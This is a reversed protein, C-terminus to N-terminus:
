VESEQFCRILVSFLKAQKGNKMIVRDGKVLINHNKNFEDLTYRDIINREHKKCFKTRMDRKRTVVKYEMPFKNDATFVAPILYTKM